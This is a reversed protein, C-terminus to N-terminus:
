QLSKSEVSKKHAGTTPFVDEFYQSNKYKYQLFFVLIAHKLIPVKEMCDLMHHVESANDGFSKGPTNIKGAAPQEARNGTARDGTLFMPGDNCILWEVSVNFRDRLIKIISIGPFIQGKEIRSYNARRIDFHAVMEEQTLSLATRVQRLRAGIEERLRAKM